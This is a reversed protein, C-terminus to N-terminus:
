GGWDHLQQFGEPRRVADQKITGLLLRVKGPGSWKQQDYCLQTIVYSSSLSTRSPSSLCESQAVHSHRRDVPEDM